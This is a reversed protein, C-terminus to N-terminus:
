LWNKEAARWLIRGLRTGQLNNLNLKMLVSDMSPREDRIQKELRLAAIRMSEFSGSPKTDRGISEAVYSDIERSLMEDIKAIDRSYVHLSGVQHTYYGLGLNLEEAILCQLQTFCFMDYAFGLWLDNSRMTAIAHLKGDRVLFQIALTCPVDRSKVTNAYDLEDLRWTTLCAQRTNPDRRLLEILPHLQEKWREGYGGLPAFTRGNPGIVENAYRHYSPAYHSIFELSNTLSLYWLLEGCAYSMNMRRCAPVTDPELVRVSIDILERTDGSRSKVSQGNLMTHQAICYYAENLNKFCFM